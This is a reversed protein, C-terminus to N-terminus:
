YIYISTITCKFDMWVKFTCKLVENYSTKVDGRALFIFLYRSRVTVREPGETLPRAHAWSTFWIRRWRSFSKRWSLIRWCWPGSVRRMTASCPSTCRVKMALSHLKDVSQHACLKWFCRCISFHSQTVQSDKGNELPKTEWRCAGFQEACWSSCSSFTSLM